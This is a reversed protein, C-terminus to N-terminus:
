ILLQLPSLQKTDHCFTKQSNAEKMETPEKTGDISNVVPTAVTAVSAVPAVTVPAVPVAAAPVPTVQQIEVRPRKADSELMGLHRELRRKQLKKMGIEEYDQFSGHPTPALCLAVFSFAGPTKMLEIKVVDKKGVHKLGTRQSLSKWIKSQKSESAKWLEQLTRCARM